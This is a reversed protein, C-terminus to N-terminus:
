RPRFQPFPTAIRKKAKWSLKSASYLGGPVKPFKSEDFGIEPFLHVLASAITKDYRLIAKVGKFKNIKTISAGYWNKPILPDFGMHKGVLCFFERRNNVNDWYNRPVYAFESEKLGINPFLDILAKIISMSYPLLIFNAEKLQALERALHYWTLPLYADMGKSAAFKECFIRMKDRKKTIWDKSNELMFSTIKHSIENLSRARPLDSSSYLFVQSWTVDSRKRLVTPNMPVSNRSISEYSFTVVDGERIDGPRMRINEPPVIFAVENPLQIVCSEDQLKRLVLGERDGKTAKLKILLDSRGRIYDSKPARLIVGEGGDGLILNMFIELQEKNTCLLRVAVIVFQHDEECNHLLVAYRTEFPLSHTPPPVIDFTVIRLFHWNVQFSGIIQQSDQFFGRGFWIETDLYQSPFLGTFGPLLRLPYGVRSFLVQAIMNWCARIGDYKEGLWWPNTVPIGLVNLPDLLDIPPLHNTTSDGLFAPYSASMLEGVGPVSSGVFFHISPNFSILGSDSSHFPYPSNEEHQLLDPRFFKITEVLSKRHGDWWCPVNILTISNKLAVEM